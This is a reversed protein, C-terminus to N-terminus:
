AFMKKLANITEKSEKMVVHVSTYTDSNQKGIVDERVENYGHQSLLKKACLHDHKWDGYLEISITCSPYKPDQYVDCWFSSLINEVEKIQENM